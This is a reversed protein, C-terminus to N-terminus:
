SPPAPPRRRALGLTWAAGALAVLAGAAFAWPIGSSAAVFGLLIPGIGLGLDIAASATGSALGREAPSATAFVASFFAPTSFAVGIGLVVAGVVLGIADNWLAAVILGAAIAVLSAAGLPLSPLRDPVRAFAIRCVVVVTGFTLLAISANGVGVQVAHISAFALYGGMAILVTLFALSIPLAPRHLIRLPAGPPTRETSTEGVVLALAYGVFARGVSTAVAAPLAGSAWAAGVAGAVAAPSPLVDPSLDLLVVAAQWAAVLLVIALVSLILAIGAGGAEGVGAATFILILSPLNLLAIFISTLLFVAERRGFHFNVASQGRDGLLVFRHWAVAIMPWTFLAVLMLLVVPWTFTQAMALMPDANPDLAAMQAQMFEQQAINAVIYILVPLWVLRVLDFFHSYAGRYAEMVTAVVDLKRM